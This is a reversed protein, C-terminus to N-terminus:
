VLIPSEEHPTYYIASEIAGTALLDAVDYTHPRVSRTFREHSAYCTVRRSFITHPRLLRM